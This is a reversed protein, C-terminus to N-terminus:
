VTNDSVSQLMAGYKVISSLSFLAIPLVAESIDISAERQYSLITGNIDTTTITEPIIMGAFFSALLAWAVIRLRKALSLSFPTKTSAVNKFLDGLLWLFASTLAADILSLAADSLSGIAPNGGGAMTLGVVFTSFLLLVVSLSRLVLKIIPAKRALHEQAEEVDRSSYDINM